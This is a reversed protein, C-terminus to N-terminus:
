ATIAHGAANSSCAGQLVQKYTRFREPIKRKNANKPRCRVYAFGCHVFRRFTFSPQVM